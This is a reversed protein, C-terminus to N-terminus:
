KTNTYGEAILLAKVKETFDGQLVILEDKVSGGVGLRQKLWKALTVRDDSVGVFGQVITVVKGGRGAREKCVRLKQASKSRTEVEEELTDNIYAFDPNTSYVVGLRDKWSM